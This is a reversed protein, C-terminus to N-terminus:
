WKRIGLLAINDSDLQYEVVGKRLILYYKVRTNSQLETGSVKIKGIDDSLVRYSVVKDNHSDDEIVKIVDWVYGSIQTGDKLTVDVARYRAEILTGLDYAYCVSCLMLLALALVMKKM